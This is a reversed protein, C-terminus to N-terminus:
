KDPRPLELDVFNIGQPTVKIDDTDKTDLWGKMYATKQLSNRLDGPLKWTVDRYCSFIQDATVAGVEAVHALWYAAVVNHELFSNGPRKDAVFDKFSTKGTPHLSLTKDHGPATKPKNSPPHGSAAPSAKTRVKRRGPTRTATISPPPLADKSSPAAVAATLEVEFVEALWRVVRRRAAEPLPEIAESATTMASLESIHQEM